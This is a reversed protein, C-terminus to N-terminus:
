WQAINMPVDAFMMEMNGDGSGSWDSQGYRKEMGAVWSEHEVLLENKTNDVLWIDEVEKFITGGSRDSGRWARFFPDPGAMIIWFRWFAPFNAHKRQPREDIGQRTTDPGLVPRNGTTLITLLLWLGRQDSKSLGRLLGMVAHRRVKEREVADASSRDAARWTAATQSVAEWGKAVDIRLRDGAPDNASIGHCEVAVAALYHMKFAVLDALRATEPKPLAHSLGLRPVTPWVNECILMCARRGNETSNLFSQIEIQGESLDLLKHLPVAVFFAILAPPETCVSRILEVCATPIQSSGPPVVQLLRMFAETSDPYSSATRAHGQIIHATRQDIKQPLARVASDLAEPYAVITAMFAYHFRPDSPSTIQWKTEMTATASPLVILTRILYILSTLFIRNWSTPCDKVPTTDPSM